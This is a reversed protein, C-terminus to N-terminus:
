GLWGYREKYVPTHNYFNISEPNFKSVSSSDPIYIDIGKGKAIGILYELNPRQWFYEEEAKMDVGYISIRNYKEYIGLALMYSISSNFYYGTVKSVAEFPYRKANSFYEEQMYLDPLSQLKEIYDKPRKSHESELLRLDHMEFHRDLLSWEGDWPLGWKEVTSNWPIENRSNDALGIIALDM